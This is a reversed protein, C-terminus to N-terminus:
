QLDEYPAQRVPRRPADVGFRAAALRRQLARLEAPLKPAFPWRWTPRPASWHSALPKIRLTTM